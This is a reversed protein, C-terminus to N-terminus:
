EDVHQDAKKTKKVKAEIQDIRDNMSQLSDKINNQIESYRQMALMLSEEFLDSKQKYEAAVENMAALKDTVDPINRFYEAGLTAELSKIQNLADFNGAIDNAVTNIYVEKAKINQREDVYTPDLYTELEAVRDIVPTIKDRGSVASSILTNASLLSDTLNEGADHTAPTTTGLIKNLNDIRKEIIDLAEM